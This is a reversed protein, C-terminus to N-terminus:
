TREQQAESMNGEAACKIEWVFSRIKQHLTYVGEPVRRTKIEIGANDGAAMSTGGGPAACAQPM